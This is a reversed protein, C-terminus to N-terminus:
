IVDVGYDDLWRNIEDAAIDELDADGEPGEPPRDILVEIIKEYDRQSLKKTTKSKLLAARLRSPLREVIYDNASSEKLIEERAIRRLQLETIRM